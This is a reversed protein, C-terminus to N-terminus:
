ACSLAGHLAILGARATRARGEDGVDGTGHEEVRVVLRVQARSDARPTSVLDPPSRVLTERKRTHTPLSM